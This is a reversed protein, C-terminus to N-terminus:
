FFSTRPNATYFREKQSKYNLEVLKIRYIKVQITISIHRANLRRYDRKDNELFFLRCGRLQIKERKKEKIPDSRLCIYNSTDPVRFVEFRM